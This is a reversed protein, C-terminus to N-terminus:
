WTMMKLLEEMNRKLVPHVAQPAIEVLPQLVFRREHMLPHPITLRESNVVLDEVLLIDIDITRDSYVSNYSKSSRGLEREITETQNLIALPSLGTEICCVANLFFHLSEFGLPPTDYFASLSIIEGIRESISKIASHLIEERNGINSGLGLYVQM